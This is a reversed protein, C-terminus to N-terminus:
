SHSKKKANWANLRAESILDYLPEFQDLPIIYERNFTSKLNIRHVINADIEGSSCEMRNCISRWEWGTLTMENNEDPFPYYLGHEQSYEDVNEKFQQVLNYNRMNLSSISFDSNGDPASDLYGVCWFCM